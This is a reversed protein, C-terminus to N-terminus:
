RHSLWRFAQQVIADDAFESLKEDERWSDALTNELHPQFAKSFVLNGTEDLKLDVAEGALSLSIDETVLGTIKVRLVRAHRSDEMLIDPEIGKEHISEFFPSLWERFTYTLEGQDSLAYLDGEVAKGYTVEGMVTARRNDKLASTLIEAASATGKNVLVILPLEIDDSNVSAFSPYLGTKDKEWFIVGDTLFSEAVYLAQYIFGGGNDRLDLILSKVGQAILEDMAARFQEYVKVHFFTSISIYGVEDSLKQSRVAILEIKARTISLSFQGDTSPRYLELTVDTGPEGRTMSAIDDASKGKVEVGDVKVFVDGRKLGAAEAPSDPIVQAIEVDPKEENPLSLYVGIGAFSGSRSEQELAARQPNSYFSYPDELSAVMGKLAGRILDDKAAEPNLDDIYFTKLRAYSEFFAVGVPSSLFDDLLQPDITSVSNAGQALSM